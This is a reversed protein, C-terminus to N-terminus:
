SADQLGLQLSSHVTMFTGLTEWWSSWSSPRSSDLWWQWSDSSPCGVAQQYWHGCWGSFRGRYAATVRWFSPQCVGSWCSSSSHCAPTRWVAHGSPPTLSHFFTMNLSSAIKFESKPVLAETAPPGLACVFKVGLEGPLPDLMGGLTIIQPQKLQLPLPPRSNRLCPSIIFPTLYLCTRSSLSSKKMLWCPVVCKGELRPGTGCTLTPSPSTQQSAWCQAWWIAQCCDKFVLHFINKPSFNQVFIDQSVMRQVLDVFIADSTPIEAGSNTAMNQTEQANVRSM